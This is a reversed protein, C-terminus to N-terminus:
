SDLNLYYFPTDPYKEHVGNYILGKFFHYDLDKLHEVVQNHIKFLLEGATFAGKSASLRIEENEDETAYSVIVEKSEVVIENPNWATKGSERNYTLAAEVFQEETEYKKGCFGWLVNEMIDEDPQAVVPKEDTQPKPKEQLDIRPSRDENFYAVKKSFDVDTRKAAADALFELTQWETEDIANQAKELVSEDATAWCLPHAEFESWLGSFPMAGGFMTACPIREGKKINHLPLEKVTLQKVGWCVPADESTQMPAMAVIQLPNEGTIIAGTLHGKEYVAKPSTNHLAIAWFLNWLALIGPVISWWIYGKAILTATPAAFIMFWVLNKLKQKRVKAPSEDYKEVREIDPTIYAACTAVSLNVYQGKDGIENTM